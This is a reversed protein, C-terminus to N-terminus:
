SALTCSRSKGSRGFSAATADPPGYAGGGGPTGTVCRQILLALSGASYAAAPSKEVAARCSSSCIPAAETSGSLGLRSASCAELKACQPPSGPIGGIHTPTSEVHDLVGGGGGAEASATPTGAVGNLSEAKSTHQWSNKGVADETQLALM